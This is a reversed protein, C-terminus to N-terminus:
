RLSPHFFYWSMSCLDFLSAVFASRNNAATVLLIGQRLHLTEVCITVQNQAFDAGSTFMQGCKTVGFSIGGEVQGEFVSNGGAMFHQGSM